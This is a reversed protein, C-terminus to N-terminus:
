ETFRYNYLKMKADYSYSNNRFNVVTTMDTTFYDYIRLIGFPFVAFIPYLTKENFVTTKLHEQKQFIMGNM